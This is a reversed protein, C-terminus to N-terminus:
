TGDDLTVNFQPDASINERDCKVYGNMVKPNERAKKDNTNYRIM